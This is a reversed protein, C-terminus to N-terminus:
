VILGRMQGIAESLRSRFWAPDWGFRSCELLIQVSYLALYVQERFEAGPLDPKRGYGDWFEPVIEGYYFIWEAMPDGWFARESDLLGTIVPGAPSVEYLVNKHWLDGHVLQPTRIEDLQERGKELLALFEDMGSADVDLSQMDVKFDTVMAILTDSWRTFAPKPYPYGFFEGSTDHIRRALTGLQRWLSSNEVASLKEKEEDWLLGPLYHLFMYDRDVIQHTFDVLIPKPMVSRVACFYPQIAYERRMLGLENSFVKATRVPGVRLITRIGSSLQVQYSNNFMGGKLEHVTEVAEEDGFARRCM